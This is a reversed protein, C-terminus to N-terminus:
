KLININQNKTNKNIPRQLLVNNNINNYLIGKSKPQNYYEPFVYKDKYKDTKDPENNRLQPNNQLYLDNREAYVVWSVKMNPKGGAIIFIGNKIEEKIYLEPASAGVPTLNYSYNTNISEFYNPLKVEAEGQANLTITGRYLNLVEPSEVCFHVLFKNEPNLPNDIRFSKFGGAYFDNGVDLNNSIGGDDFSYVGYGLSSNLSKGAIGTIGQGSVGIGSTTSSNIGFVGAYNNTTGGLTQGWVGYSKGSGVVGASNTNVGTNEGWVGSGSGISTEGMVGYYGIGEVGYGGLTQLNSGLVAADATSTSSVQGAVGFAAGTSYGFVASVLNSTSNTTAQITCYTNSALTNDALVAVGSNSHSSKFGSTNVTSANIEVSGSNATIIRGLGSGGCNYAQDLTVCSTSAAGLQVWATGDWYWYQNLTSDFVLLGKQTTTLSSNMATRQATTLRPILLGKNTATLDLIANADPTTTGIGVNNQSYIKVSFFFTLILFVAVVKNNFINIM